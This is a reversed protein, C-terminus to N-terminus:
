EVGTQPIGSTCSASGFGGELGGSHPRAVDTSALALCLYNALSNTESSKSNGRSM